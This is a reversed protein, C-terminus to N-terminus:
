NLFIKIVRSQFATILKVLFRSKRALIGIEKESILNKAHEKRLSISDIEKKIIKGEEDREDDLIKKVAKLAYMDEKEPLKALHVKILFFNFFNEAKWSFLMFFKYKVTGFGGNGLFRELIIYDVTNQDITDFDKALYNSINDGYIDIGDWNENPYTANFNSIDFASEKILNFWLM